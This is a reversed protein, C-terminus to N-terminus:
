VGLIDNILPSISLITKKLCSGEAIANAEDIIDVM